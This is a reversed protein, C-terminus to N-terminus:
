INKMKECEAQDLVNAREETEKRQRILETAQQRLLEESPETIQLKEMRQMAVGEAFSGETNCLPCKELPTEGEYTYGCIGCVYANMRAM